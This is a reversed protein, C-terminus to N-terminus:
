VASTSCMGNNSAGTAGWRARVGAKAERKGSNGRSTCIRLLARGSLLLSPLRASTSAVARVGSSSSCILHRTDNKVALDFDVDLSGVSATKKFAATYDSYADDSGGCGVFSCALALALGLCSIKKLLRM